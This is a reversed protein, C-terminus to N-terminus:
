SPTLFKPNSYDGRIYKTLYSSSNPNGALVGLEYHGICVRTNCQIPNTPKPQSVWVKRSIHGCPTSVLTM